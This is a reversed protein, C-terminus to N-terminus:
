EALNFDTLELNELCQSHKEMFSMLSDSTAEVGMLRLHSLQPWTHDGFINSFNACSRRGCYLSAHDIEELLPAWSLFDHMYLRAIKGCYHPWYGYHPWDGDLEEDPEIIHLVLRRLQAMSGKADALGNRFFMLKIGTASLGELRVKGELVVRLLLTLQGYQPISQKPLSELLNTSCWDYVNMPWLHPREVDSDCLDRIELSRLNPLNALMEPINEAGEVWDDDVSRMGQSQYLKWYDFLGGSDKGTAM